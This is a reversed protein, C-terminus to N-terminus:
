PRVRQHPNRDPPQLKAPPPEQVTVILNFTAHAAKWTGAHVRLLVTRPASDGLAAQKLDPGGQATAVPAAGCTPIAELQFDTGGDNVAPANQVSITLVTGAPFSVSFWDEINAAHITGQRSVTQGKPLFGLATANVCSKGYNDPQPGASAAFVALSFFVSALLGVDLRHYWASACGRRSSASVILCPIKMPLFALAEPRNTWSAGM